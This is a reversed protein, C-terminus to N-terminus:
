AAGGLRHGHGLMDPPVVFGAARWEAPSPLDKKSWHLLQVPAHAWCVMGGRQLDLVCAPAGCIRGDNLYAICNM